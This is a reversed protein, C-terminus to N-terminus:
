SAARAARARCWTAVAPVDVPGSTDLRYVPGLALPEARACMGAWEDDTLAAGHIAHSRVWRQEYRERALAFPVECWVELVHEVGAKALGAQVLPRVDARWSSELVAGIPSAALLAWMTESAATGLASNWARQPRDPHEAGLVDAHTEKIVDKSFVPLGLERALLPALSSKGAAPLGNVLVM